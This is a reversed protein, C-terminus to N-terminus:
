LIWALSKNRAAQFYTLLLSHNLEVMSGAHLRQGQEAWAKYWRTIDRLTEDITYTPQWGLRFKAKSWDLSQKEFPEARAATSQWTCDTGWLACIKSAIVGNEIGYREYPGFNFAEGCVTPEDLKSMLAMYGSLIDLGYTYPRTFTPTFLEPSRGAALAEYCDVHLHGAGQTRSSSYPDGGLLVNGARGVGIRKGASRLYTVDYDHIIQEACAKSVPYPDSAFLPDSEQWVEGGKPKYVKDTTVFVAYKTTPALRLAELLTAVGLTNSRYTELPNRRAEGVLTVAALHFVGDVRNVLRQMLAMDNIDGQIFDIRRHLDSAVFNSDAEPLRRDVGLVTSGAELLALALWTGKVGAVGTILIRKDRFFNGFM